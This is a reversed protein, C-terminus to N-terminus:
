FSKTVTIYYSALRPDGLYSYYNLTSYDFPPTRNFLNRVGVKLDLGEVINGMGHRDSLGFAYGLYVDQYTQSPIRGGKGQSAIANASSALSPDAVLYSDLYRLTWGGSWNDLHWRVGTNVKYKLAVNATSGGIGLQDTFPLTPALQREYKGIWTGVAFWDFQGFRETQWTYDLQMDVTDINFKGVNVMSGDLAIIPGAWDEPDTPLKPGRTIRGPFSEENDLIVQDSLTSIVNTKETRTFDLSLRLSDIAAPTLVMGISWSKSEEPVLDPSGGQSRLYPAVPGTFGRKPDMFSAFNEYQTPVGLQNVDPPIFGTGYSARFMLSEGPRYKFAILPSFENAEQEVYTFVPPPGGMTGSVHSANWSKYFDWRGALQVDLSEIWKVRNLDSFIPLSLEFYASDVTQTRPPFFTAVVPTAQMGMGYELDQRELLLSVTPKGGPMNGLPGSIRLSPNKAVSDIPFWTIADGAFYPLLDNGLLYPDKLLDIAGSQVDANFSPPFYPSDNVSSIEAETRTYDFAGTWEKGLKFVTGVGIRRYSSDSKVVGDLQPAYTSIWVAQQFPNAASSAPVLSGILKGTRTVSENSSYSYDIYANIRDNFEHKVSGSFSTVKPTALLDAGGASPYQVASDALDLNFGGANAVLGAGNDSLAGLYGAPAYTMSSGLDTGDRLRLDSGDASVINATSSIPPFSGIRLGAPHNALIARRADRMFDRDKVRLSNAESFSGSLWVSTRGDLLSFGTSMDIRRVASDTDFTNDYTVGVQSGVFDRRLIVNIVGGTASGGYIASATTPLVEIREIAALPIGNLDAQGSSYGLSSRAVRRGDVLILTQGEGMGRLSVSSTDGGVNGAQSNSSANTGMTLRTRLFDNINVAGSSEIVERTFVVYPQPDDVSRQIDMNLTREGKVMIAPMGVINQDDGSAAAGLPKKVTKAPAPPPVSRKIVVTTANVFEYSLGSGALLQELAQRATYNGSVSEARLGRTLEPPALLQLKSQMSLQKLADSLKGAPIEYRRAEVAQTQAQVDQSICVM